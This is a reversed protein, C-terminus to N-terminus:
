GYISSVLYTLIHKTVTETYPLLIIECHHCLTTTWSLPHTTYLTIVFSM